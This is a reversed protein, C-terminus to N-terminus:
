LVNEARLGWAVDERDLPGVNWFASQRGGAGSIGRLGGPSPPGAELGEAM